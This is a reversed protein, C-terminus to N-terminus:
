ANTGARGRMALKRTQRNSDRQIGVSGKVVPEEKEITVLVPAMSDFLM